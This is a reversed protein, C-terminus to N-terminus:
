LAMFRRMIEDITVQRYQASVVTRTEWDEDAGLYNYVMGFRVEKEPTTFTVNHTLPFMKYNNRKFDEYDWNLQYNGRYKDNYMINAMKVHSSVKDVLWRYSLKGSQLSVVADDSKLDADFTDLHKDELKIKGPQFLENWFLAQLVYFDINSNRLFEVQEYPMKMYLKNIRDIVLVYEKTFELRGAEVFGFAMLQLRIVDDRKMRLNGTLTMQQNGVEVSFKIKSTIFRAHQANDTVKQLLQDKRLTDAAAAAAALAAEQERKQQKKSKRTARDAQVVQTKEKSQSSQATARTKESSSTASHRGLGRSSSCSAALLVAVACTLITSLRLTKM